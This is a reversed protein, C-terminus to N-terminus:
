EIRHRFADNHDIALLADYLEDNARWGRLQRLSAAVYYFAERRDLDALTVLTAVDPGLAGRAASDLM